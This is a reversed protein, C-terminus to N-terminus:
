INKIIMLIGGVVAAIGGFLLGIDNGFQDRKGNLFRKVIFIITVIGLALLTIGVFLNNM